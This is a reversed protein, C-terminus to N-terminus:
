SIGLVALCIKEGEKLRVVSYFVIPNNYSLKTVETANPFCILALIIYRNLLHKTLPVNPSLCTSGKIVLM